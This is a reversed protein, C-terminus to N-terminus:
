LGRLAQQLLYIHTEGKSAQEMLMDDLGLTMMDNNKLSDYTKKCMEQFAKEIELSSMLCNHVNDEEPAFKQVIIAEAGEMMLKGCLGIAREAADDALGEAEEYLRQFLLHDGYNQASWHNQQHLLYLARTFAVYSSLLKCAEEDMSTEAQAIKLFGAIIYDM